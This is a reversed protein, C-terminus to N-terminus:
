VNFRHGLGTHGRAHVADEHFDVFFWAAGFAVGGIRQPQIAHFREQPAEHGKILDHFMGSRDRARLTRWVSAAATSASTSRTSSRKARATSSTRWQLPRTITVPMPFDPMTQRLIAAVSALVPVGANKRWGASATWPSRPTM